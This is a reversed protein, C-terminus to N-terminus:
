AEKTADLYVTLEGVLEELQERDLRLGKGRGWEDGRLHVSVLGPLSSEYVRMPVAPSHTAWQHEPKPELTLDLRHKATM